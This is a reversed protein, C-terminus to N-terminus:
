VNEKGKTHRPLLSEKDQKLKKPTKGIMGGITKLEKELADLDSFHEAKNGSLLALKRLRSLKVELLAARASVDKSSLAAAPKVTKAARATAPAPAQEPAGLFLIVAVLVAAAACALALAARKRSFAPGRVAARAASLVREDMGDPAGRPRLRKLFEATKEDDM